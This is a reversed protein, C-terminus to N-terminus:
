SERSDEVHYEEVEIDGNWASVQLNDSLESELDFDEFLDIDMSGSVYMTASWEITKTLQIDLAEAIARLTDQDESDTYAELIIDRVTDVASNSKTLLQKQYHTDVLLCNIDYPSLEDYVLEGTNTNKVIIKASNDYREALSLPLNEVTMGDMNGEKTTPQESSLITASIYSMERGCPCINRVVGNPFGFGDVTTLEVLSDCEDPDCVFTYKTGNTTTM